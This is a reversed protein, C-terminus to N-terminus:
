LRKLEIDTANRQRDPNVLRISAYGPKTVGTGRRPRTILNRTIDAVRM